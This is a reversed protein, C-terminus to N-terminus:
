TTGTTRTIVAVYVGDPPARCVWVQSIVTCYCANKLLAPASENAGAMGWFLGPIGGSAGFNKSMLSPM